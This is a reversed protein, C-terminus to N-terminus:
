PERDEGKLVPDDDHLVDPHRWLGDAWKPSRLQPTKVRDWRAM